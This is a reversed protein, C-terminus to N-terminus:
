QQLRPNDNRRSAGQRLCQLTKRCKQRCTKQEWSCLVHLFQHVESCTEFKHVCLGVAKGESVLSTREKSIQPPCIKTNPAAMGQINDVEGCAMGEGPPGCRHPKIAGFLVADHGPHWWLPQGFHHQKQKNRLHSHLGIPHCSSAGAGNLAMIFTPCFVGVM